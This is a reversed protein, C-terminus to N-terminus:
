AVDLRTQREGAGAEDTTRRVDKGSLDEDALYRAVAIAALATMNVASAM